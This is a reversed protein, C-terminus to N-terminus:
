EYLRSQIKLFALVLVLDGHYFSSVIRSHEGLVDTGEKLPLDGMSVWVAKREGGKENKM